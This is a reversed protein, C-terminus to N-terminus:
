SAPTCCPSAQLRPSTVTLPQQTSGYKDGDVVVAMFRLEGTFQPLQFDFRDDM